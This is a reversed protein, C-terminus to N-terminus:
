IIFQCALLVNIIANHPTSVDVSKLKSLDTYFSPTSSGYSYHAVSIITKKDASYTIVSRPKDSSSLDKIELPLNGDLSTVTYTRRGAWFPVSGVDVKAINTNSDFWLSDTHGGPTNESVVYVIGNCDQTINESKAVGYATTLIETSVTKSCQKIPQPDNGGGCSTLFLSVSTVLLLAISKLQNKM